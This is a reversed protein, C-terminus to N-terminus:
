HLSNRAFVNLWTAVYGTRRIVVSHNRVIMVERVSPLNLKNQDYAETHKVVSFRDAVRNIM